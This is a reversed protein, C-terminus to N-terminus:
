NPLNQTWPFNKQNKQQSRNNAIRHVSNRAFAVPNGSHRQRSKQLNENSSLIVKVSYIATALIMGNQPKMSIPNAASCFFYCNILVLFCILSNRSPSEESRVIARIAYINTFLYISLYLILSIVGGGLLVTIFDNHVPLFGGFTEVLVSDHFSNGLLLHERVQLTVQDILYKRYGINNTRGVASYFKDALPLSTAIEFTSSYLYFISVASFIFSPVISKSNTSILYSVVGALGVIIYTGSPYLVFNIALLIISFILVQRKKFRIAVAIAFYALFAKEHSFSFLSASKLYRAIVGELLIINVLIALFTMGKELDEDTGKRVNGLTLVILPWILPLAGDTHYQVIKGWYVGTFGFIWLVGGCFSVIPTGNRNREFDGFMLYAIPIVVVLYQLKANLALTVKFDLIIVM